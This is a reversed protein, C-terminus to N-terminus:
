WLSLSAQRKFITSSIQYSWRKCTCMLSLKWKPQFANRYLYIHLQFTLESKEPLAFLLPISIKDPCNMIGFKSRNEFFLMHAFEFVTGLFTSVLDRLIPQMIQCDLVLEIFRNLISHGPEHSLPTTLM